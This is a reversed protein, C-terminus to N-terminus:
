RPNRETQRELFRDLEVRRYCLQRGVQTARLLGKERYYRLTRGPDDIATTDLRLYRVAEQETMLEPAPVPPNGPLWAFGIPHSIDRDSVTM